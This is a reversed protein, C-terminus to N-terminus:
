CASRPSCPAPSSRSGTPSGDRLAEQRSGDRASAGPNFHGGSVEAFAYLGRAAALGFGFAIALNKVGIGGGGTALIATTGIFVLTFTGFLEALYKQLSDTM